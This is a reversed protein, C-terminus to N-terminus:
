DTPAGVRTEGRPQRDSCTAFSTATAAEAREDSTGLALGDRHRSPASMPRRRRMAASCRRATGGRKCMVDAENMGGALEHHTAAHRFDHPHLNPIGARLGRDKIAQGIGSDTLRGRKGLWLWPLAAHAHRKRARLYDEVAVLTKDALPSTTTRAARASSTSSGAGSISTAITPMPPPTASPASRVADPVPTSSSGSSPRTVSTRSAAARVPGSCPGSRTSRSSGHCSSRCGHRACSACRHPSTTTRLRTGTSSGSSAAFATTPRPRSATNSSATSGTRSTGVSSPLSTPRTTTTWSGCGSSAYPGATPPSRTPVSTTPACPASSRPSNTASIEPRSWNSARQHLSAVLHSSGGM